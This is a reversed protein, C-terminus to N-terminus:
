GCVVPHPTPHASAYSSAVSGTRRAQVILKERTGRPGESTQIWLQEATIGLVGDLSIVHRRVKYIEYTFLVSDTTWVRVTMGILSAGNNMKSRDLLPLFMGKRAHAYILSVGPERPQSLERIYMAVNCLPYGSPPRVVALDISLDPIAIRTAVPFTLAGCRAAAGTGLRIGIANVRGITWIENMRIIGIGIRREVAGSADTVISPMKVVGSPASCSGRYIVMPYTASRKLAKASIVLSGTGSLFAQLTASGNTGGDIKARWTRRVTEASTGPALASSVVVAAALLACARALRRRLPPRACAATIPTAAHMRPM